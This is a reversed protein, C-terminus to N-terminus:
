QPQKQARLQSMDTTYRVMSQYVSTYYPEDGVTAAAFKLGQRTMGDVLDSVSNGKAAWSRSVFKSVNPDQLARITNDLESLYRKAAMYDGMSYDDVKQKLDDRLNNATSTMEQLTDADVSGQRAESLAKVALQEIKARNAAFDRTKLPLPWTLKGGDRLLGISGSTSGSKTNIHSLSEAELPVIPRLSVPIVDKQVAELITNLADGSMIENTPPNNLSRRLSEVRAKERLDEVSPTNAQEYMREDFNMRRTNIKEQKYQEHMIWSQENQVLFQGQASIVDSVGSIAGGVAGPYYGGGYVPATQAVRNLGARYGTRAGQVAGASYGAQAAVGPNVRFNQAEVPRPFGILTFAGVTLLRMTKWYSSM